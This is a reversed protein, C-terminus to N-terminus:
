QQPGGRCLRYPQFGHETREYGPHDNAVASPHVEGPEGRQARDHEGSDRRDEERCRAEANVQRDESPGDNEEDRQQQQSDRYGALEGAREKPRPCAMQAPRLSECQASAHVRSPDDLQDDGGHSQPEADEGRAGIRDDDEDGDPGRQHSGRYQAPRHRPNFRHRLFIQTHGGVRVDGPLVRSRAEDQMRRHTGLPVLVLLLKAIRRGAIWLGAFGMALLYAARWLMDPGTVGIVLDRLLVVGQYLPTWEVIDAVVRPYVSLPYFTGSFLFLPMSALLVYDFDQWSKMYTTCAVGVAAFAFGVLVAVPVAFIAWWSQVLGMFAMVLTFAVAYVTGRILAWGIEAMAVQRPGIPTALVADYLKAYKLRFYVNFTSDYMAGNMASVALLGPAIFERYPILGGGPGPVRGILAGLGIGVSLLYFLPEFIGSAFVVWVHKYVRAHREILPVAGRGARRIRAVPPIVRLSIESM